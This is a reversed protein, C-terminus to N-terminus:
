LLDSMNPDIGIVKRKSLEDRECGTIEDIYQERQVVAKRKPTKKGYLNSGIFLLSASVGDTDIMNNFWYNKM